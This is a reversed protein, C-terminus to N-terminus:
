VPWSKRLAQFDRQLRGMSDLFAQLEDISYGIEQQDPSTPLGVVNFVQQRVPSVGWRGHFFRNRMERLANASDIWQRYNELAKPEARFKARALKAL